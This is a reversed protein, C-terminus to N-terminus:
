HDVSGKGKGMRIELPKKTIPTQPFIHLILCGRKKMIKNICYVLTKIEKSSLRGFSASKLAISGSTLRFFNNKKHIRRISKGKQYKKYKSKSPIFQKQM